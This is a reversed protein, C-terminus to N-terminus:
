SRVARCSTASVTVVRASASRSGAWPSATFARKSFGSIQSRHGIQCVQRQTRFQAPFGGVTGRLEGDGVLEVRVLVRVRRALSEHRIEDGLDAAQGRGQVAIRLPVGHFQAIFEGGIDRALGPDLDGAVLHPGGVAGVLDQLLQQLGETSRAARHHAEGGAVRHVRDEGGARLRLEEVYGTERADPRVEGDVHVLSHCLDRLLFGVEDEDGRGVVRGAPDGREGVQAADDLRLPGDAADGDDVLGVGLEGVLRTRGGQEGVVRRGRTTERVM